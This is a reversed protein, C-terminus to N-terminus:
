LWAPIICTGVLDIHAILALFTLDFGLERQSQVCMASKFSLLVTCTEHEDIHWWHLAKSKFSLESQTLADIYPFASMGLWNQQYHTVGPVYFILPVRTAVDFNSYKAWEGHEGLSWGASLPLFPSWPFSRREFLCSFCTLFYTCSFSHIQIM